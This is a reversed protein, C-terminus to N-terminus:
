YEDDPEPPYGADEVPDFRRIIEDAVDQQDHMAVLDAMRRAFFPRESDGGPLNIKRLFAEFDDAASKERPPQPLNTGSTEFPPMERDYITALEPVLRRFAEPLDTNNAAAFLRALLGIGDVTKEVQDDNRTLWWVVTSGPDKLVDASLYHRRSQEYKRAHDWVAEDKRIKALEDLRQQDHNPLTLKISEAMARVRSSDDAHMLSLASALEYRVISANRPDRQETIGRARKLISDVALGSMSATANNEEDNIPEWVTTGSFLFYYDEHLSPLLVDTIADKRRDTLPRVVAAPRAGPLLGLAVTAIVLIVAVTFTVLVPWRFLFLGVIIMAGFISLSAIVVNRGTM